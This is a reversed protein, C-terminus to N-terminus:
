RRIGCQERRRAVCGNLHVADSLTDEANLTMGLEVRFIQAFHNPMSVFLSENGIFVFIFAQLAQGIWVRVGIDISPGQQQPPPQESFSSVDDAAIVDAKM